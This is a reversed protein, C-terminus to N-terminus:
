VRFPRTVANRGRSNAGLAAALGCIAMPPVPPLNSQSGERDGLEHSIVSGPGAVASHEIGVGMAPWSRTKPVWLLPGPLQDGM